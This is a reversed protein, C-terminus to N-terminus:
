VIEYFLLRKILFEITEDKGSSLNLSQINSRFQLDIKQGLVDVPFVGKSIKQELMNKTIESLSRYAISIRMDPTWDENPTTTITKMTDAREQEYLPRLSSNCAIFFFVIIFSLM